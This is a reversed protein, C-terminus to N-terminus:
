LAIRELHTRAVFDLIYSGTGGLGVIAVKKDRLLFSIDNINYSSSMTDPFRLPTGQAAAKIEIGRLPTAKDPFAAMAPGTIAALYTQVKEDFSKYDRKEGNEDLLKFSFSCDSVLGQEITVRDAGGGLKLQAKEQNHPRSGRWWAQHNSTPPDIIPGNLDPKSMWDGHQLEGDQDLYPLGYIVLYGGVFDVHYGTDLLDKLFPNHSALEPLGFACAM